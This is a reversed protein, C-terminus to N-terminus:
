SGKASVVRLAPLVTVQCKSVPRAIMSELDLEAHLLNYIVGQLTYCLDCDCDTHEEMVRQALGIAAHIVAFLREESTPTNMVDEGLCALYHREIMATTTHGLLLSAVKLNVKRKICRHAFAHRTSYLVAAVGTRKSLRQMRKGWSRKNFHDGRHGKFIPANDDVVPAPLEAAIRWPTNEKARIGLAKCIDKRAHCYLLRRASPHDPLLTQVIKGVKMPGTKLLKWVALVLRDWRDKDLFRLLRMLRAPCYIVRPKRTKRATKHDILVLRQGEWDVESWRCRALESPRAGCWWLAWLFRRFCIEAARVLRRFEREEIPRGVALQEKALEILEVPNYELLGARVAWNYVRQVTQNVRKVTWASKWAPHRRLWRLLDIPRLQAAVQEGLDEVLVALVDVVNDRSDAGLKM